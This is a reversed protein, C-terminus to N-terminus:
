HRPLGDRLDFPMMVNYKHVSITVIEELPGVLRKFKRDSLCFDCTFKFYLMLFSTLSCFQDGRGLSIM